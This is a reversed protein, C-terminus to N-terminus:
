KHAKILKNINPSNPIEQDKKESRYEDIKKKNESM